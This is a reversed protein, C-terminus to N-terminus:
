RVMRTRHAGRTGGGGHRWRRAEVETGGGGGRLEARRQVTVTQAGCAEELGFITEDPEHRLSTDDFNIILIDHALAAEPRAVHDRDVELRTVELLIDVDFLSGPFTKSRKLKKIQYFGIIAESNNHNTVGGGESVIM